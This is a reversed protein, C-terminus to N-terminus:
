RSQGEVVPKLTKEKKRLNNIYRRFGAEPNPIPSRAHATCHPSPLTCPNCHSHHHHTTCAMHQRHTRTTDTHTRHPAFSVRDLPSFPIALTLAVLRIWQRLSFKKAKQWGEVGMSKLWTQIKPTSRRPRRDTDRRTLQPAPKEGKSEARRSSSSDTSFIKEGEALRRRGHFKKSGPTSVQEQKHPARAHPPPAHATCHRYPPATCPYRTTHPAAHTSRSSPPAAAPPRNHVQM